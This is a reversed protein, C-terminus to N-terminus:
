DARGKYKRRAARSEFRVCSSPLDHLHAITMADRDVPQALERDDKVLERSLLAAEM